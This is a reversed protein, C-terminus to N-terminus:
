WSFRRRKKYGVYVLGVALMLFTAPEPTQSNVTTGNDLLAFTNPDYIFFSQAGPTGSGLWMFEVTFGSVTSGVPIGGSLALVDYASSLPPVSFLFQQSWQTNLAAATTIQLGAEQYLSPNFLIDFLQVPVGSGLSGDNYISYNYTYLNGGLPTLTYQVSITGAVAQGIPLLCVWLSLNLLRSLM